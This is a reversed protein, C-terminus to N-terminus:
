KLNEKNQDLCDFYTKLMALASQIEIASRDQILHQWELTFSDDGREVPAFVLADTTVHLVEAIKTLVHMSPNRRNSEILAIYSESVYVQSALQYQTLGAKKRATRIKDGTLEQKM